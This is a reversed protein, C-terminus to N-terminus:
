SGRRELEAEIRREALLEDVLSVGPPVLEAFYAQIRAVAAARSRIQLEGDKEVLIVTDGEGIHHRSRLEAPLVIRGSTDVKLRFYREQNQM